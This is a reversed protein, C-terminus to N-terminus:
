WGVVPEVRALAQARLTRTVPGLRHDALVEVVVLDGDARVPPTVTVVLGRLEPAAARAAREPASTGSTTAAVRAGVRAAEQLVLLDRGLAAVQILGLVLVAIVPLVLVVELSLMGADDTGDDPAEGAGSRGGAAQRLRM